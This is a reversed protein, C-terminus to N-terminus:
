QKTENKKKIFLYIAVLIIIVLIATIALVTFNMVKSKVYPLENMNLLNFKVKNSEIKQGNTAIIEGPMEVIYDFKIGMMKSSSNLEEVTEKMSVLEYTYITEFLGKEIKLGEMETLPEDRSSYLTLVGNKVDCEVYNLREIKISKSANKCLEERLQMDFEEITTSENYQSIFSYLNYLNAVFKVDTKGDEHIKREVTIEI